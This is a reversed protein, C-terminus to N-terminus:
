GAISLRPIMEAAESKPNRILLIAPNTIRAEAMDEVLRGLSTRLKREDPHGASAVVTVPREPAHGDAMLSDRIQGASAVGMYIALAVGPVCQSGWDPRGDGPKLHGTTLTVSEIEGRTTLGEKLTAAAASAATIGPVVEVSLDAAELAGIEEELRAFIAPDGCKLRVVKKGERAAQVLVANIRDQPWSAAGPTKGVLVREADRRALELVAPDVLRDYFIVDAEQLRQVGRLTMLDAGGPGAGVISVAARDERPAGGSIIADKILQAAEREAGAKHRARPSGSFVWRWLNRRDKPQLRAAAPRLRGALAALDGLKPELVEELKSKIQRALVPATGETGIAVVVPDRDVISPTLADCLEPQDVVNALAGADQLLAHLAHASGPCDTAVFVLAAAALRDQTPVERLWSIRNESALGALEDDLEPWCLTIRAETKLMLRCKQAAQEGGGLIVVERDKMRLFMPFTQM